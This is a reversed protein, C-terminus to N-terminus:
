RNMTLNLIEIGRSLLGSSAKQIVADSIERHLSTSLYQEMKYIKEITASFRELVTKATQTDLKETLASIIESMSAGGELALFSTLADKGFEKLFETTKKTQEESKGKIFRLFEFQIPVELESLNVGFDRRIQERVPLSSMLIFDAFDGTNGRKGDDAEKSVYVPLAAYSQLGADEGQKRKELMSREAFMSLQGHFDYIGILSPSLAACIFNNRPGLPNLDEIRNRWLDESRWRDVRQRHLETSEGSEDEFDQYHTILFSNMEELISRARQSVLYSKSKQAIKEIEERITRYNEFAYGDDGLTRRFIMRVLELAKSIEGFSEESESEMLKEFYSSLKSPAFRTDYVMWGMLNQLHYSSADLQEQTLNSKQTWNLEAAGQYLVEPKIMHVDNLYHDFLIRIAEFHEGTKAYEILSKFIKDQINERKFNRTSPRPATFYIIRQSLEELKYRDPNKSKEAQSAFDVSPNWINSNLDTLNKYALGVKPASEAVEIIKTVIADATEQSIDYQHEDVDLEHMIESLVRFGHPPVALIQERLAKDSFNSPKPQDEQSESPHSAPNEEQAVLEEEKPEDGENM